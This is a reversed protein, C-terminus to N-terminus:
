RLEPGEAESMGRLGAALTSWTDVRKRIAEHYEGVTSELAKGIRRANEECFCALELRDSEHMGAFNYSTSQKAESRM